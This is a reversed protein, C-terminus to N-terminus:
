TISASRLAPTPSRSASRRDQNASRRHSSQMDTHPGTLSSPQTRWTSSSMPLLRRISMWHGPPSPRLHMLRQPTSHSSFSPHAIAWESLEDNGMTIESKVQEIGALVGQRHHRDLREWFGPALDFAYYRNKAEILVNSDIIYM